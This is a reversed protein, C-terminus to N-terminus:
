LLLGKIKNISIHNNIHPKTDIETSVDMYTNPHEGKQTLIPNITLSIIDNTIIINFYKIYNCRNRREKNALQQYFPQYLYSPINDNIDLNNDYINNVNIYFKPNNLYSIIKSYLNDADIICNIIQFYSTIIKYNKAKFDILIDIAIIGIDKGAAYNSLLRKQLQHNGYIRLYYGLYNYQIYNIIYNSIIFHSLDITYYHCKIFIKNDKKSIKYHNPLFDLKSLVMNIINKEYNDNLKYRIIIFLFIHFILLFIFEFFLM